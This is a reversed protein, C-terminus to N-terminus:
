KPQESISSELYTITIEVYLTCPFSIATTKVSHKRANFLLYLYLIYFLLLLIVLVCLMIYMYVCM